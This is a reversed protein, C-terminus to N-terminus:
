CYEKLTELKEVFEEYPISKTIFRDVSNEFAEDITEKDSSTSLVVVPIHSYGSDKKLHKIVDMGCIKPLNLDLIILIIKDNAVGKRKLEMEQFYNIAAQGDQILVINRELGAKKFVDMILDAHDPDDEILLIRKDELRLEREDKYCM